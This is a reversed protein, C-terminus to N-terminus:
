VADQIEYDFVLAGSSRHCNNLWWASDFSLLATEPAPFNAPLQVAIKLFSDDDTVQPRMQIQRSGFAKKLPEVAEILLAALMPEKRLIERVSEDSDLIIYSQQLSELQRKLYENSRAQDYIRARFVFTTSFIDERTKPGRSKQFTDWDTVQHPILPSATRRLQLSELAGLPSNLM